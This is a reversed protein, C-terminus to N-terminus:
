KTKNKKLFKEIKEVIKSKRSTLGEYRYLFSYIAGAYVKLRKELKAQSMGTKELYNILKDKLREIKDEYSQM